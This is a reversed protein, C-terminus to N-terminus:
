TGVVRHDVDVRGNRSANQAMSFLFDAIRFAVCWRNDPVGSNTRYPIGNVVSYISKPSISRSLIGRSVTSLADV